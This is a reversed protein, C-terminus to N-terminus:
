RATKALTRRCAAHTAADFEQSLVWRLYSAPVEDYKKGFHAGFTIKTLYPLERSWSVAEKISCMELMRALIHATTYADPLARHPPMSLEDDLTLGLAYRLYQNNHRDMDPFLRLAVKYTDIWFSDEPITVYKMEFEANHAAFIQIQTAGIVWAPAETHPPKDRLDKDKIHHTARAEISMPNNGPDFFQQSVRHAINIPVWPAEEHEREYISDVYGAEIVVGGKEPLDTTELDFTRIRVSNSM